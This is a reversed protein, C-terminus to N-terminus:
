DCCEDDDDASRFGDAVFLMLSWARGADVMALAMMLMSKAEQGSSQNERTEEAKSSGVM